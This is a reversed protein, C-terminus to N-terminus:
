EAVLDAFERLTIHTADTIKAITSCSPWRPTGDPAFHKSKNFTTADLGSLKALGSCSLGNKKALMEIAQWLTSHTM